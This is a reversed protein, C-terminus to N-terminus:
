RMSMGLAFVSNIRPLGDQGFLGGKDTSKRPWRKHDQRYDEPKEDRDQLVKPRPREAAPQLPQALPKAAPLPKEKKVKPAKSKRTGPPVDDKPDGLEYVRAKGRTWWCVRLLRNDRMTTIRSEASPVQEKDRLEAFEARSMQPKGCAKWDAILQDIHRQSQPKFDKVFLIERRPGGQGGDGAVDRRSRAGYRIYGLAVLRSVWMSVQRRNASSGRKAFEAVVEYTTIRGSKEKVMDTVMRMPARHFCLEVPDGM